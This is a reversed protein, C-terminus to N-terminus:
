RSTQNPLQDEWKTHEHAKLICHLTETLAETDDEDRKWTQIM